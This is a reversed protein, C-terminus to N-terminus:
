QMTHFDQYNQLAIDASCSSDGNNRVKRRLM